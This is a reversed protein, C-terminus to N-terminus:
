ITCADTANLKTGASAGFASIGIRSGPVATTNQGPLATGTTVACLVFYMPQTANSRTAVPELQGQQGFTVVVTDLARASVMDLAGGARLLLMGKTSDTTYVDTATTTAVPHAYVLWGTEYTKTGSCTAGDTSACLSVYTARLVAEARAYDVAAQLNDAASRLRHKQITTRFSPVAIAVLIAIIVIAVLMELLTFGRSKM